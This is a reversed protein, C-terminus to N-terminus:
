PTTSQRAALFCIRLLQYCENSQLDLGTIIAQWIFNTKNVQSKLPHERFELLNASQAVRISGRSRYAILTTMEINQSAHHHNITLAGIMESSMENCMAACPRRATRPWCLTNAGIQQSDGPISLFVDVSLLRAFISGLFCVLIVNFDFFVRFCFLCETVWVITQQETNLFFFSKFVNGHERKRLFFVTNTRFWFVSEFPQMSSHHKCSFSWNRTRGREYRTVIMSSCSFVSLDLCVFYIDLERQRKSQIRLNNADLLLPPQVWSFPLM